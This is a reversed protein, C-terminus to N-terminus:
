FFFIIIGIILSAISAILVAAAAFDKITKVTENYENKCYLNCLMEICTNLIEAVWVLAIAFLIAIWQMKSLHKVFGAIIVIITATLHIRTNHENVLLQKMGKIAFGFSKIRAKISFSEKQKMVKNNSWKKFCDKIGGSLHYIIM